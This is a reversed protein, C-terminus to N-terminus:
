EDKPTQHKPECKRDKNSKANSIEIYKALEHQRNNGHQGRNRRHRPYGDCDEDVTVELWAEPHDEVVIQFLEILESLTTENVHIDKTKVILRAM